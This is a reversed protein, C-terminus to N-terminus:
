IDLLEVHIVGAVKELGKVIEQHSAHKKLRLFCTLAIGHGEVADAFELNSLIIDHSALWERIVPVAALSDMFITVHIRKLYRYFVVEVKDALFMTILMAVFVSLSIAYNGVGINIGLCAVAWLGAATTLGKVKQRPTIMITGAGIFGIGSIVQASLRAPDFGPGYTQFLSLGALMTSCAGICVLMYTRMGAPRLKRTREMGLIGSAVLAMMLRIFATTDNFEYLDLM